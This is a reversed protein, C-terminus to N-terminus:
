SADDTAKAVRRLSREIVAQVIEFSDQDPPPPRHEADGYQANIRQESLQNFLDVFASEINGLRAWQNIASAVSGHTKAKAAKNRILILEAKSTLEAANFLSVVSPGALGKTANDRAAQLFQMANELMDKAKRRGSRFNFFVRWADSSLVITFHGNDLLEDPLDFKEIYGLDGVTVPEGAVIPRNARMLGVGKVEDNLFVVNKGEPPFLVQAMYLGFDQPLTGNQKRREIEPGFFMEYMQNFTRASADQDHEYSIPPQPEAM